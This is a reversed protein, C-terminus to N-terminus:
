DSLIDDFVADAGLYITLVARHLDRFIAENGIESSSYHIMEPRDTTGTAFKEVLETIPGQWKPYAYFAFRGSTLSMIPSTLISGTRSGRESRELISFAHGKYAFYYEDGAEVIDQIWNPERVMKTMVRIVKDDM